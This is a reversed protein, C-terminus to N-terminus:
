AASPNFWYLMLYILVGTVSVYMWVPFGLRALRRHQGLRGKLGLYILRLAIVPVVMALVIHSILMAFYVVRIPGTGHYPTHTGGQVSARWAYHTVYSILFLGSVGTASLMCRVHAAVRHRRICVFGALLMICALANLSANIHPLFSLDL